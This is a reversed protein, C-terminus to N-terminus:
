FPFDSKEDTFTLNPQISQNEKELLWNNRDFGAVGHYNFRGCLLDYKTTAVGQSGLHKFKFKQIHIETKRDEPNESFYRYVVLGNDCKNFFHASGSIQYLNPIEVNGTTKDKPLKAPHAVLFTHVGNNHNFKILQDLSRSIYQTESNTYQHDLKNWPDIILGKIGYRRVLKKAHLLINDLSVDEDPPQIFYFNDNIFEHAREAQALTMRSYPEKTDRFSLGVIKEAMKSLYLHTPFNEPSFVGFKWGHSISLRLAIQDVFDSKGHQPVGTVITLQGPAFSALDDFERLGIKDGPPLGKDYLDVFQDHLQHAYVIGTLECQKADDITQALAIAGYKVLYENADKCDKFDVTFCREAGLRRILEHKLLNGKEDNDVAIYLTEVRELEEFCNDLYTMDGVNAGNPVSVAHKLGSEIFSLVDIEGECVIAKVSELQKKLSNLNYLILEADKVMKFGKDATRYKINVVEQDRLYPFQVTNVEKGHQPMWEVGEGVGTDILTQQSIGRSKFWNVLKDSLSTNNQWKPKVYQKEPKNAKLSGRWGCNHCNWVGETINVSLCKEHRNKRTSSCQPCLTKESGDMRRIDIGLAKIRAHNSM